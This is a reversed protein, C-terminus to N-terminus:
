GGILADIEAQSNALEANVDTNGAAIRACLDEVISIIETNQVRSDPWTAPTTGMVEELMGLAPVDLEVGLVTSPQMTANCYMSEGAASYFFKVFAKAADIHKGSASICMNQDPGCIGSGTGETNMIRIAGFKLDPNMDMLGAVTWSGDLLMGAKGSAFLSISSEYNTGLVNDQFIGDNVMKDVDSFVKVYLDDTLKAEGTELQHYSDPNEPAYDCLLAEYLIDTVWAEGFGAAMPMYGGARLADCAAKLSEYDTPVAIGLEEFLATNYYVVFTNTTQPLGYQKGNVQGASLMGPNMEAYIDSDLELLYGEEALETIFPGAHAMCVDAGEGSLLRSKLVSYYETQDNSTVEMNVKVNPNAAEFTAIMEKLIDVDETRWTVFSLEIAEDSDVKPVEVEAPADEKAADATNTAPTPTQKAACGAFVAAVLIVALLLSIMKKM